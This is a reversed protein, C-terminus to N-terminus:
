PVQKTIYRSTTPVATLVYVTHLIFSLELDRTLQEVTSVILDFMIGVPDFVHM